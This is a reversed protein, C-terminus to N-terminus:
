FRAYHAYARNAEAMRHTDEKKKMAAGQSEAALMLEEALEEPTSRGKKARVATIIWKIAYMIKQDKKVEMPIQYNAGGIRRSRVKLTPSVNKIANNFVDIAKKGTKKEIIDFSKYLLHQALSKKGGWMLNNVFKSVVISGYKADAKLERQFNKNSGRPM